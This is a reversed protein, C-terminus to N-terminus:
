YPSRIYNPESYKVEKYHQLSEIVSEVSSGDLIKMLYLSPKYVLRITELHLEGQINKIVQYDTGDKFKVIIEGPAHEKRKGEMRTMKQLKQPRTKTVKSNHSLKEKPEVNQGVCSIVFILMILSQFIGKYNIVEGM